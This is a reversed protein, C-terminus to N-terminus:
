GRGHIPTYTETTTRPGPPEVAFFAWSPSVTRKKGRKARMAIQEYGRYCKFHKMKTNRNM